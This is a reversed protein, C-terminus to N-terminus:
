ITKDQTSHLHTSIDSTVKSSIKISDPRPPINTKQRNSTQGDIEIYSTDYPINRSWLARFQFNTDVPPVNM